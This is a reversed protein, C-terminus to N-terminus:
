RTHPFLDGFDDDDDPCIASFLEEIEGYVKENTGRGPEALDNRYGARNVMDLASAKSIGISTLRPEYVRYLKEYADKQAELM